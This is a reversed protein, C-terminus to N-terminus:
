APEAQAEVIGELARHKMQLEGLLREAHRVAAAATALADDTVPQGGTRV